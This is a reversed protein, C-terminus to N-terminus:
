AKLRERLHTLRQIIENNRVALYIAKKQGVLIVLKKGRTIGTYLLNRLLLVYHAMVIPIVVVPFESGQSKHISIAYALRVEDLENIDYDLVRDDFSIKLANQEINVEVIYGIDGNFVKKDYNNVVQIVKDHLGFYNGRYFIRDNTQHNLISQLQINLNTSGLIGRNMPTLVQIDTIANFGYRNPINKAVCAILKELVVETDQAYLIYFDQQRQTASLPMDGQNIRHANLIIQSHMAQRFVEKLKITQVVESEIMDKLVNGSGVAPLQDVDGVLVLVSHNAVAKLLHSMLVIDIMSVEDVILIDQPLPYKEHHKFSYTSRQFDLLRHITYASLGTVESLRKAARGTPACLAISLGKAKLIKVLSNLITTKGVGPGGTIITIKNTVVLEIAKKQLASLQLQTKQEVWDLAQDCILPQWSVKYQLIRHMHQAVSREAYYLHKPFIYDHNGVRETIFYNHKIQSEIAEKVIAEPVALLEMSLQSLQDMTAACHGKECIQILVHAVGAEVRKLDNKEIGLREGLQDATKFGIGRIDLALRYPNDRVVEISQDGYLKFIRWARSTGVGHTYLFLMISRIKKQEGWAKIILAKRKEGIGPLQTLAEPNNDFVDFVSEGFAKVLRAAFHPGIGKILGSGLYKQIGEKTSPSVVEIKETKFQLGYKRDQQWQGQCFVSEGPTILPVYGVVTVLDRHGKAKVRMVAFGNEENHFTVREVIASLSAISPPAHVHTNTM